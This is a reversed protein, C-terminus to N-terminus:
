AGAGELDRDPSPRLPLPPSSFLRTGKAGRSRQEEAVAVPLSRM